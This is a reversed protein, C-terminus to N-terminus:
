LVVIPREDLASNPGTLDLQVHGLAALAHRDNKDVAKREIM